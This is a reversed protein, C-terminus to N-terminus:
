AVKLAGAILGIAGSTEEPRFTSYRDTMAETEHGCIAQQMERSVGSARALDQFTRRMGRPTLAFKLKIRRSVDKFPRDLASKALLTGRRGPFLLASAKRKGKLSAVHEELAAMVTPPLGIQYDRETKTTDMVEQRMTHSRRVLITSQKWLVDSNTGRRRLPRLTSPRLGTVFGVLVMAYFQPYRRHMVAVFSRCQATTLSNPDEATYTPHEATSFDRVHLTPDKPLDLDHVATGIIVRLISLWGNATRPSYKGSAIKSAVRTKWSELELKGIADVPFRGFAPLLHLRLTTDWRERTKASKLDRHAVKREYLLPAYVSFLPMSSTPKQRAEDLMALREASAARLSEAEIVRFVTRKRGRESVKGHVLYRGDRVRHVGLVTTRKVEYGWRKTWGIM